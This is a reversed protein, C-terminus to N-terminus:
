KDVNLSNALTKLLAAMEPNSLLKAVLEADVGGTSATAEASGANAPREDEVTANQTGMGSYFADEFLAANNRRDDDLIHSYQDTVMQAQAHGSDGQVSKIDGGNLKLKYTISSHRLSHFVVKPLDNKAILETFLTTIRSHETPMGMANAMVLDFDCYEKGIADKLEDQGKKWDILMEAVTKPLFIKRTSTSTKPKKLVLVTKNNSKIEPFIRVVDKKELTEMVDKNVRQLEKNIFISARGSAINEPSIDVCDWTLGLLEGLRLSCAFALNIALKLREDECVELAHFLTPADWIERKKVESKPVTAYMAPNKEMLEWKVAQHFASRLINHVKRITPPQVYNENKKDKRMSVCHVAPTKLLKQYYKELVRATIDNLKMDGIIPSIYNGILAINSSYVSMSWTAKGYLSVYEDLLEDVTKCQHVVLTGLEERYEVEAKRRKADAMTKYTEWKQKRKGTAEDDYLYVVIFRNNRQVITAM